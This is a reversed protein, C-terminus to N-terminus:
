FTTEWDRDCLPTDYTAPSGTLFDSQIYRDLLDFCYIPIGRYRLTTFGSELREFSSNVGQTELYEAWNDCLTKTAIIIRNPNSTLRTDGNRELNQWVTLATKKKADTSQM